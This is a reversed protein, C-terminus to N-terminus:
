FYASTMLCALKEKTIIKEEHERNLVMSSTKVGKEKMKTRMMERWRLHNEAVDTENVRGEKRM